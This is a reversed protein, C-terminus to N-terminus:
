GLKWKVRQEFQKFKAGDPEVIVVLEAPVFGEPLRLEGEVKQFHRFGMKISGNLGLQKGKLTAAKGALKGAVRVKVRGVVKEDDKARKSVLFAFQVAEQEEGRSSLKVKSVQLASVEGSILSNLFTVKKTLASREEQLARLEGRVQEAALRDIQSARQYRAAEARLSEHERQLEQLRQELDAQSSVTRGLSFGANHAGAQYGLWGAAGILLLVLVTWFLSRGRNPHVIRPAEFNSGSM